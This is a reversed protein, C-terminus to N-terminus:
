GGRVRGHIHMDHWGDVHLMASVLTGELPFGAHEALRCSATNDVSHVIELRHLGVEDLAWHVLRRVAITAVGAGRADPMVWYTIQAWGLALNIERAAVYGLLDGTAADTVAWAADTEAAWAVGWQAIWESAETQSEMVRVHWRQIEPDSFARLVPHAHVAAWPRLRIDPGAELVPQSSGQLRGAPVVPEVLHPM